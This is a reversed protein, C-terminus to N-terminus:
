GKVLRGRVSAADAGTVRVVKEPNTGGSEISLASAKVGLANALLALVAANAKGAEPPAAVRVKLRDGLLGAVQSRSAGPVVKLRLLVDPGRQEVFDAMSM